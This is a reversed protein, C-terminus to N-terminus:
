AATEQAPAPQALLEEAPRHAAKLWGDRDNLAQYEYLAARFLRFLHDQYAPHVLELHAGDTTCHILGSWHMVPAPQEVNDIHALDARRYTEVQVYDKDRLAKGSKYDLVGPADDPIPPMSAETRMRNVIDVIAPSTAIVDTTGCVKLATLALPIEVVLSTIDWEDLLDAVHQVVPALHDHRPELEVPQGDHLREAYRHVQHGKAAADDRTNNPINKLGDIIFRRDPAAILWETNNAVFTAVERAAWGAAAGFPVAMGAGLVTTVGPAYQGDLKYSHNDGFNRRVLRNRTAM